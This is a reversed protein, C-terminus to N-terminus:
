AEEVSKEALFLSVRETYEPWYSAPKQFGRTAIM